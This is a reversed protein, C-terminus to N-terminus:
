RMCQRTHVEIGVLDLPARYGEKLKRYVANAVAAVPLPEGDVYIIGYYGKVKIYDTLLRKM